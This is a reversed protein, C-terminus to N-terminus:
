EVEDWDTIEEIRDSLKKLQKDYGDLETQLTGAHTRAEEVTKVGYATEWDKEIQEMLAQAKTRREKLDTISDGIEKMREPTMKNDGRKNGGM